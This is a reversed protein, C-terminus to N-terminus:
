ADEEGEQAQAVVQRILAPFLIAGFIYGLVATVPEAQVALLIYTVAMLAVLINAIVMKM